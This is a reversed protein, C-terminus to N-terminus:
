QIVDVHRHQEDQDAQNVAGCPEVLPVEDQALRDAPAQAQQQEEDDDDDDQVRQRGDDLAQGTAHVVQAPAGPGGKLAGGLRDKDEVAVAADDEDVPGPLLQGADGEGLSALDSAA